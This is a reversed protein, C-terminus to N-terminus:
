SKRKAMYDIAQTLFDTLMAVYYDSTKDLEIPNPHNGSIGFTFVPKVIGVDSINLHIAKMDKSNSDNLAISVVGYKDPDESAKFEGLEFHMDIEDIESNVQDIAARIRHSAEAWNGDTAKRKREREEQNKRTAEAREAIETDLGRKKAVIAALERKADNEM